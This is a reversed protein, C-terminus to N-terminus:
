RVCDTRVWLRLILVRHIRVAGDTLLTSNGGVWDRQKANTLNYIACTDSCYETSRQAKQKEQLEQSNSSVLRRTHHDSEFTRPSCM